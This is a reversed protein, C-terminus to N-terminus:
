YIAHILYLFGALSTGTGKPIARVLDPRYDHVRSETLGDSHCFGAEPFKANDQFSGKMCPEHNFCRFPFLALAKKLRCFDYSNNGKKPLSSQDQALMQALRGRNQIHSVTVAQKSSRQTPGHGLDSGTFGPSSFNLM